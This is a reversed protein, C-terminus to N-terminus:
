LGGLQYFLSKKLRGLKQLPELWAGWDEGPHAQLDDYRGTAAAPNGM